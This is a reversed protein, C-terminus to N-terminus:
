KFYELVAQVLAPITYKKPQLIVNLGHSKATKTTIPGISAVPIKCVLDHLPSRGTAGVGVMKMFNEVTSSSAFTMLDIEGKQILEQLRDAGGKPRITRYAEVVDVKAGVRKLEEVLIERAEKARPILIRKGRIRKAALIRVLGEARYEEAISDVRIGKERIAEATAPGIAAIQIGKLDRLDRGKKQLREFFHSVGNVSTFIIWHYKKLSALAHDIGRWSAPPKIEITPIESVSAGYEELHHSLESAQERTRTVLIRKGFLPKNEFWNLQERLRVVDGVVIISPPKLDARRVEEAVTKLTATVVRQAPHTGWRIVAVPTEPARGAEILRESIQEANGVGMLFVVTGIKSLAEWPVEGGSGTEKEHGTVFAVTSTYDRHTVPIGAYAPAAIASTIGPVIEFPIKKRALVEAEEGGRGFVFPDGGKLRVVVKGHVAEEVILDNIEDQELAHQNGKKGAYIFAANSSAYSLLQENVLYDYIIVDAKRILEVAKLTVLGPDGPGAGVLYVKGQKKM